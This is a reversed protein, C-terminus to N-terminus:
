HRRPWWPAQPPLAQTARAVCRRVHCAHGLYYDRGEHEIPTYETCTHLHPDLLRRSSQLPTSSPLIRMCGLLLSRDDLGLIFACGFSLFFLYCPQPKIARSPLPISALGAPPVTPSGISMCVAGEICIIALDRRQVLYENTQTGYSSVGRRLKPRRDTAASVEGEISIRRDNGQARPGASPSRRQYLSCSRVSIVKM